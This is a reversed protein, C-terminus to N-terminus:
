IFTLTLFLLFILIKKSVTKKCATKNAFSKVGTNKEIWNIYVPVKTFYSAFNNLCKETAQDAFVYSTIGFLYWKGQNFYMLPGGSDGNCINSNKETPDLACYNYTLDKPCISRSKFIRLKTQLM